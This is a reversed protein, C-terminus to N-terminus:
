VVCHQHIESGHVWIVSCAVDRGEVTAEDPVVM